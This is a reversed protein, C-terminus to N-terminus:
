HARHSAPHRAAARDDAWRSVPAAAIARAPLRRSHGASPSRYRCRCPRPSASAHLSGNKVVLSTPRPVPRPSDITKPRAAWDPPAIRMVLWSPLPVVTSSHSGTAAPAARASRTSASRCRVAHHRVIAHQHDIVIRQDRQEGGGHQLVKAVGALHHGDPMDASSMSRESPVISTTTVSWAIGSMVPASSARWILRVPRLQRDDQGGAIGVQRVARRRLAQRAQRLREARVFEGGDEGGEILSRDSASAGAGRARM